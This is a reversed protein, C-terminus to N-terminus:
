KAPEFGKTQDGFFFRAPDREISVALRQLSAVLVRAEALFATLEYLGQDAFDKVPQRTERALIDLENAMRSFSAATRRIDEVAPQAAVVLKDADRLAVRADGIAAVTEREVRALTGRADKVLADASDATRTVSEATERAATILSRIETLRSEAEATTAEVNALIASVKALNDESLLAAAREAVVTV